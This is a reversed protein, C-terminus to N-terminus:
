TRQLQRRYESPSMGVLARFHHRFGAATLGVRVAVMDISIGPKELMRMGARVRQQAVWRGPSAGTAYTFRREFQRVSLHAVKALDELSLRTALHENAYSMAEAIPDDAPVEAVPQEIFQAQGGERHTAVVMRRAVRGAIDAGHDHRILHLCLDIGATTGASTLVDTHDVYLVSPNVRVRPYRRQLLDAHRWHTTAERGDLLGAAALAFAGTCISMVRAGRRHASQLAHMVAPSIDGRVDPVSPVVVTHARDVAHLGTYIMIDFGGIARHAGPKEACLTFSYWWDVALEPRPQAFVEAVTGLEFPAIGDFAICAVLHRERM